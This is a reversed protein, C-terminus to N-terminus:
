GSLAESMASVLGNPLYSYEVQWGTGKQESALWGQPTYQWTTEGTADVMRVLHDEGDYGYQVSSSGAYTKTRLRGWEDYTYSTQQGKADTRASPQTYGFTSDATAYQWQTQYGLPTTLSVLNGYADYGYQTIKGRADTVSTLQGYADYGYQTSLYNTADTYQKM